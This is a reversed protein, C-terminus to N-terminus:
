KSSSNTYKERRHFQLSLLQMRFFKKYAIENQKKHRRYFQKSSDWLQFIKHYFETRYEHERKSYRFSASHDTCCQRFIHIKRIKSQYTTQNLFLVLFFPIEPKMAECDYNCYKVLNEYGPFQM